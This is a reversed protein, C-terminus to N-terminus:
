KLLLHRLAGELDAHQFAYGCALLKLPEVRTSSLLLEDAMEGFALRAILAPMPFVTPRSLVRGLVKTFESNTVPGPAVVNVPGSLSEKSLAHEIAGVADDLSIWSMYQKGSGVKGGAGMRFPFLMKQLAGGKPSLIVGFRLHVVRIGHNAAPQGVAEWDRCVGALFNSGPASDERLVEEGRDGYYGIASACAFVKPPRALKQISESLLKTGDVRSDRIRRKKEATWRGSAINDGALHVVVDLGELGGADVKGSAPDWEVEESSKAKTRVLRLVVHGKKSLVPMLASGVLGSSGSVLVKM